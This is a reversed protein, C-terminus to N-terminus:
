PNSPKLYFVHFRTKLGGVIDEFDLQYYEDILKNLEEDQHLEKLKHM